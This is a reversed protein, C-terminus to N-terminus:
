ADAWAEGHHRGACQCVCSTGRASTCAEDCERKGLKGSVKAMKLVGMPFIGRPHEAMYADREAIMDPNVACVTCSLYRSVIGDVKRVTGCRNCAGIHAARTM